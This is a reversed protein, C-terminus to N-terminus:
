VPALPVATNPKYYDTYTIVGVPRWYVKLPGGQYRPQEVRDVTMVAHGRVNAVRDGSVLEDARKFDDDM